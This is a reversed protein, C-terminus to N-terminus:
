HETDKAFYGKTVSRQIYRCTAGFSSMSRTKGEKLSKDLVSYAIINCVNNDEERNNKTGTKSQQTSQYIRNNQSADQLSPLGSFM